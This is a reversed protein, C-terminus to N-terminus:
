SLKNLEEVVTKAYSRLAGGHVLTNRLVEDDIGLPKIFSHFKRLAFAHANRERLIIQSLDKDTLPPQKTEKEPVEEVIGETASVYNVFAEDVIKKEADNLREFDVCHGIEHLAVYIALPSNLDSGMFIRKVDFNAGSSEPLGHTWFYVKYGSPLLAMLDIKENTLKEKLNFSTLERLDEKVFGEISFNEQLIKFDEDSIEQYSFNVDFNEKEIKVEGEPEYEIDSFKESIKSVHEVTTLRKELTKKLEEIKAERGEREAQRIALLISLIEDSAIDEPTIYGKEKTKEQIYKKEQGGILMDLSYLIRV